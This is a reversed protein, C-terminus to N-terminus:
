LTLHIGATITRLPPLAGLGPSEPSLGSYNTITLLNQCQVFLRVNSFHMRQLLPQPLAYSLALNKLRVFSADTIGQDSNIFTAYAATGAGGRAFRQVDTIDGTQRWRAMVPEAQNGLTGPANQFYRSYGFGQQSVFQFLIELQFGKYRFSNLLGGYYKRGTYKASQRDNSDFVGDGNVDTFQYIGTTPNVGTYHYLKRIDLSQGVVYINTYAPFFEINPFAVLKNKPITLNLSTSWTFQSAEFNRTNLVLELGTNQVTAPFNGQVSSFGTTPALPLGVLQSSSRNHYYSVGISMRDNMFGLDLGGEIKKNTEWAFDPNSLRVPGLGITGQYNSSSRYADLYQYDGIQDNGTTGYSARLKGFSLFSLADKIFDEKSFLWAAGIAGFMSYQKGSGFRSSGDRRGTANVIYKGKVNYNIRGFAAQYRYQSYYNTASIIAPAAALNKMLSESVFGLAYQALGGTKQDLFTTGALVDLQGGGLKPKWNLQPELIWNQFDSNSFTSRNVLGTSGPAYSSIPLTQIGSMANSTYGLNVKAQLNALISYSIVANGILNSTTAEYKRNLFALPNEFNSNWGIWNLKGSEDYLAPADPALNLANLTLDQGPLSTLNRSYNISVTTKLKQDPSTNTINTHVSVRQDSNTGPFVTTEKHYGGGLVFQTNKEGGSMSLQADTINATGGILEKQWNTYRTTDWVLLDPSNGVNPVRVDNKFAERRMETYKSTNLLDMQHPVQAIGSYLNFDIKTQGSKGKKTTILIVGNSGRSGYIATADADKLVEISEIDAPNISNLPSYGQTSPSGLITGSTEAFSMSASTFPVGDIIYLPDNGSAISNTGRIRVKFSEGPVGSSQTIELGAVRGQLAAIPNSVPQLAIDKAEVKVINGTQTEKTTTYYGANVVVEGLTTVDQELSINIVMREDVKAETSKYGIFSFVLIQGPEALISYKGDADTTTGITTGKVVINVGPMPQNTTGDIVTGTVPAPLPVQFDQPGGHSQEKAKQSNQKVLTIAGEKEHVKYEIHRPALLETLVQRLSQRTIELTVADVTGLKDLSYAFRVNAVHEIEKLAQEFPINRLSITVETDLLQGSVPHAASVGCLALAIIGQVACIRM